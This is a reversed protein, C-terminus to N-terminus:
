RQAVQTFQPRTLLVSICEHKDQNCVPVGCNCHHLIRKHRSRVVQKRASKAQNRQHTIREDIANMIWRAERISARLPRPVGSWRLLTYVTYYIPLLRPLFDPNTPITLLSPLGQLNFERCLHHLLAHCTQAFYHFVCDARGRLLSLTPDTIRDWLCPANTSLHAVREPDTPDM